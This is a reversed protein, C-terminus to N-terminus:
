SGRGGENFSIVSGRVPDRRVILSTDVEEQLAEVHSIIGVISRERRLTKLTEFIQGLAENDLSGFGEDIFFFSEGGRRVSESLSIALSFAAQFTQGGSLTKISRLKGGNLLDRVQFDGNEDVELALSKGTLPLFRRNARACLERLYRTSVFRVFGNGKMMNQLLSLAERRRSLVREEKELRRLEEEQRLSRSHRERATALEAWLEKERGEKEECSLLAERYGAENFEESGAVDIAERLQERTAHLEREFTAIKEREEDAKEYRQIFSDLADESDFGHDSLMPLFGERLRDFRAGEEALSRGLEELSGTLTSVRLASTEMERRAQAFRIELGEADARLKERRAALEGGDTDGWITFLEDPISERLLTSRGKEGAIKELLASKEDSAAALKPELGELDASIGDLNLRLLRGQRSRAEAEQTARKWPEREEPDFRDWCFTELHERTREQVDELSRTLQRVRDMHVEAKSLANGREIAAKRVMPLLSQLEEAEGEAEAEFAEKKEVVPHHLSGCLPCPTGDVLLGRHSRIGITTLRDEIERERRRLAELITEPADDVSCSLGPIESASSRPLQLLEEAKRENEELEFSLRKTEEQLADAKAYWQGLLSLEGEEEALKEIDQLEKQVEGRRTLLEQRRGILLREREQLDGFAKEAKRLKEGSRRFTLIRELAEAEDANKRRNEMAAELERYREECGLREERSKRLAAENELRRADLTEMRKRIELMETRRPLVERTIADFRELGLRRKKWEPEALELDALREKLQTLREARQRAQEQRSTFARLDKLEGTLRDLEQTLLSVHGELESSSEGEEEVILRKREEIRECDRRTDSLLNTVPRYLDFRDLQFLEQLMETRDKGSLRLFEQFSGQPIVVARRFNEYSLGLLEAANGAGRDRDDAFPIWAEGERRYASRNYNPAKDGKGSRKGSVLFRYEGDGHLFTFDVIMERASLHMYHRKEQRNLRESQDYLAFGIADVISSKGSGVQGFIGFLGAATLPRFDIVTEELYSYFGKLTLQLPIM